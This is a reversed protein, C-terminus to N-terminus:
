MNEIHFVLDNWSNVFFDKVEPVTFACIIVVVVGVALLIGLGKFIGKVIKKSKAKQKKAM